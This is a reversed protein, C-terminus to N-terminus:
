EQHIIHRDWADLEDILQKRQRKLSAIKKDLAEVKQLFEKRHAVFRSPEM